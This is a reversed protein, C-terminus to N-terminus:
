EEGEEDEADPAEGKDAEEATIGPGRETLTMKGNANIRITASGLLKNGSDFVRITPGTAVLGGRAKRFLPEFSATEEAGDMEISKADFEEEPMQIKVQM